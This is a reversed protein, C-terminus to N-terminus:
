DEVDEDDEGYYYNEEYDDDDEDGYLCADCELDSVREERVLPAHDKDFEKSCRTLVTAKHCGCKWTWKVSRCM